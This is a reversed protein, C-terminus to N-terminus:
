RGPIFGTMEPRQRLGVAAEVACALALLPSESGANCAVQLGVPLEGEGGPLPVSVACLDYVNCSRANALSRGVFAVAADVTAVESVPRPTLPTTPSVVADLGQMRKAALRSLERYRRQLRLYDIARLDAAGQLRVVPVPDISQRKAEFRDQGITTMLDAPVMAAFIDRVVDQEAPSPWDVDVLEAGERELTQLATEYRTAVDADMDICQPRPVGFRAGRLSLRHMRSGEGLAHYIIAADAAGATLLGVSDMSPCLPFIGDLPWVGMSTKLGFVGCLAAPLRVSGGTDSGVAFGCLGAAMAVASGHSSGGPTRRTKADCPNWPTPHILNQAGAAFEITRTKGLVVCGARKLARVFGGEPGICDALDLNSGARTPMGEVAFLDKIAVPVGMLPGLDTGGALLRDIGDASERAQEAAVHIFAELTPDLVAIRDLYADVAARATIGGARLRRAFGEIGGQALPDEALTSM